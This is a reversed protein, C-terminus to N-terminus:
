PIVGWVDLTARRIFSARDTDQSPKLGKDELKALVFADIPTRVWRAAKVKPAPAAAVPQYSWLANSKAAPAPGRAAAAADPQEAATASIAAGSLGVLLGVVFAQTSQKRNM